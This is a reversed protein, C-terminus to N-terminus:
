DDNEDKISEYEELLESFREHDFDEDPKIGRGEEMIALLEEFIVSKRRLMGDRERFPITM